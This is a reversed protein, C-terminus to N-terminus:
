PSTGRPMRAALTEFMAMPTPHCVFAAVMILDPRVDELRVGVSMRNSLFARPDGILASCLQVRLEHVAVDEEAPGAIIQALVVRLHLDIHHM